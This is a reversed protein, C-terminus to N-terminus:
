GELGIFNEAPDSGIFKQEFTILPHESPAKNVSADALFCLIHYDRVLHTEFTAVDDVGPSFCAGIRDLDDPLLYGGNGQGGIRILPSQIAVLQLLLIAACVHELGASCLMRVYNESTLAVQTSYTSAATQTRLRSGMVDVYVADAVIRGRM